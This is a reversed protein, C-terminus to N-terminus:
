KKPYHYSGVYLAPNYIKYKQKYTKKDESMHPTSVTLSEPFFADM